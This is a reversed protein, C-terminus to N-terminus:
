QNMYSGLKMLFADDIKDDNSEFFANVKNVDSAFVGKIAKKKLAFRQLQKTQVNYLYYTYDDEYEDYNNGSSTM